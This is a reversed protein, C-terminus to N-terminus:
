HVIIKQSYSAEGSQIQLFYIGSALNKIPYQVMSNDISNNLENTEMLEGRISFLNLKYKGAKLGNVNIFSNNEIPNPFVHFSISKNEIEAIGVPETATFNDMCFYAPTNMGFAGVDSSSLSFVLSDVAGLSSLSFWQWDKIIYDQASNNYRYDALYFTASDNTMVGGYYKRVTLKFWDPDTGTIGGFKKAFADGDRMSNYAYTSNSVYCGSVVRGLSSDTLVIKSVYEGIAYNASGAYGTLAKTAYQNAFGSTVSDQMNSYIFSGSWYSFTADWDYQFIANSDKFDDGNTNQYYSNPALTFKEFTSVVNTQAICICNIAISLITFKIKM